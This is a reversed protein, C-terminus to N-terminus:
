EEYVPTSKKIPTQKEHKIHILEGYGLGIKYGIFTPLQVNSVFRMTVAPFAHTENYRLRHTKFGSKPIIMLSEGLDIGEGFWHRTNVEIAEIIANRTFEVLGLTDSDQYMKSFEIKQSKLTGVVIPTRTEYEYMGQAFTSYRAEKIEVSIVKSSSGNLAITRHSMVKEAAHRLAETNSELFSYIVITNKAPKSYAFPSTTKEHHMFLDKYQEDVIAGIYNRVDRPYFRAENEREIHIIMKKMNTAEM